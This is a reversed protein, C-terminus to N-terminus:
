KSERVLKVDRFEVEPLALFGDAEAKSHFEVFVSGKFVKHEGAVRRRMQILQVQRCPLASCRQHTHDSTPMALTM